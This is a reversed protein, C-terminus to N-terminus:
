QYKKKLIMGSKGVAWLAKPSQFLRHMDPFKQDSKHWEKGGDVTWWLSGPEKNNDGVIFGRKDDLFYVSRLRNSTFKESKQWTQGGDQTHFVVGSHGVAWGHQVDVFHLGRIMTKDELEYAIWNEGGDTTRLIYSGGAMFGNDADLFQIPEFCANPVKNSHEVWTEGNDTSEYYVAERNSFDMGTLFGRGQESMYFGYFACTEPALKIQQWTMGGNDTQLLTGKDGCIWGKKENIFYIGEYYLSDLKAAIMWTDGGDATRLVQGTGYSIIWGHEADLFFGNHLADDTPSEARSWTSTEEASCVLSFVICAIYFSSLIKM